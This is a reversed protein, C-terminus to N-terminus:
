VKEREKRKFMSPTDSKLRVPYFQDEWLHSNLVDAGVRFKKNYVVLSENEKTSHQIIHVSSM